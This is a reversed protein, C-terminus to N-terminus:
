ASPLAAVAEDLRIRLAEVDADDPDGVAALAMEARRASEGDLPGAEGAVQHMEALDGNCHLVLDCGADLCRRSREALSGALAGMSVDDSFLLGGFGIHGRVIEAIVRASTTAPQSPDLATFVIHATMAAPLDALRRFPVFDTAELEARSTEVVPLGLHSDVLARGHGPMHKIVPLVGGALLGEATARGLRAVTEPDAGFSRDGIVDSQGPISLDLCPACDITIGVERLDAALVRGSMRAIADGGTVAAAAVRAASPIKRWNPVTLRQVRGGEQDVLIPADRGVADRFEDCLARIQDRDAINRRFLILGFPRTQAFFRKEEATLRLGSAGSVFRSVPM